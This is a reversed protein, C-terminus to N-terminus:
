LEVTGPQKNGKAYLGVQCGVRSSGVRGQRRSRLRVHRGAGRRLGAGRAGGGQAARAQTAEVDVFASDSGSGTASAAASTSGDESNLSPQSFFGRCAVHISLLRMKSSANKM